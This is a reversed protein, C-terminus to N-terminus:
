KNILLAKYSHIPVSIHNSMAKRNITLQHQINNQNVKLLSVASASGAAFFGFNVVSDPREPPRGSNSLGFTVSTQLSFFFKFM